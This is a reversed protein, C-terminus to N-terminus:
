NWTRRHQVTQNNDHSGPTITQSSWPWDGDAFVPHGPFTMHDCRALRWHGGQPFILRPCSKSWLCVLDGQADENEGYQLMSAVIYGM